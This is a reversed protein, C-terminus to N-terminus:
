SKYLFRNFEPTGILPEVARWESDTLQAIEYESDAPLKEIKKKRWIARKKIESKGRYIYPYDDPAADFRWHKDMWHETFQQLGEGLSTCFFHM